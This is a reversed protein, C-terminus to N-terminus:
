RFLWLRSHRSDLRSLGYKRALGLAQRYEDESLPRDLPPNEDARYCPRYQDMLNLYTNKSIESSLFAIVAETGALDAPLM